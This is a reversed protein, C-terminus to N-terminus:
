RKQYAVKFEQLFQILSVWRRFAWTFLAEEMLLPITLVQRITSMTFFFQDHIATAPQPNCSKTEARKPENQTATFKLVASLNRYRNKVAISIWVTVRIALFCFSKIKIESTVYVHWIHKEQITSYPIIRYADSNFKCWFEGQVTSIHSQSQWNKNALEGQVNIENQTIM